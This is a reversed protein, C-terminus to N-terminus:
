QESKIDALPVNQELLPIESKKTGRDWKRISCLTGLNM